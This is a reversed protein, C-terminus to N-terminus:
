LYEGSKVRWGVKLIQAIEQLSNKFIQHLHPGRRKGLNLLLKFGTIKDGPGAPFSPVVGIPWKPRKNLPGLEYCSKEGVATGQVKLARICM